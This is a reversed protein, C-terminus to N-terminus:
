VIQETKCYVVALPLGGKSNLQIKVSYVYIEGVAISVKLM